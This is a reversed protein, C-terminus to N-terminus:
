AAAARRRGQRLDPAHVAGRAPGRARGAGVLADIGLQLQQRVYADWAPTGFTLVKGDGTELDFVDWAGLVVLAVSAHDKTVAAAWKQQWGECMAFYNRFSARTSRVRGEDYVSCGDLSGDTIRFTSEIGNPKNIALAHAQSDGVIAVGVVGPAAPPAAPAVTTPSVSGAPAAATAVTTPTAAPVEFTADAGGAARDFPQVVAYCGVLLIVVCSAILLVRSRAPGARRWWRRLHGQRVPTEVYRYSLETAM